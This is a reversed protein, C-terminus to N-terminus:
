IDMNKLYLCINGEIQSRTYVMNKSALREIIKDVVFKVHNGNGTTIIKNIFSVIKGGKYPFLIIDYSSTTESLYNRPYANAFTTEFYKFFSFRPLKKKNIFISASFLTSDLTRKYLVMKLDDGIKNESCKLKEFDPEFYVTVSDPKDSDKIIPKTKKSMNEAFIQQYYKGNNIVTVVFKKSFINALKIGIGNMGNLMREKDDDYNSSSYTHGFALEPEYWQKGDIPNLVQRIPISEGNNSVQISKDTISVEIRTTPNTKSRSINDTANTLAEDFLKLIAPSFKVKRTTIKNNELDYLTRMESIEDFRGFYMNPRSM